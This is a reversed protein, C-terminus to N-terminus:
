ADKKFFEVLAPNGSEKAYADADDKSSFVLLVGICGMALKDVPFPVSVIRRGVGIECTIHDIVSQVIYGDPTAM